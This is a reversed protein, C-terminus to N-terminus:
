DIYTYRDKIGIKNYYHNVKIITDYYGYKGYRDRHWWFNLWKQEQEETAKEAFTFRVEYLYDTSWGPCEKEFDHWEISHITKSHKCLAIKIKTYPVWWAQLLKEKVTDLKDKGEYKLFELLFSGKYYGAYHGCFEAYCMLPHRCMMGLMNELNTFLYKLEGKIYNLIDDATYSVCLSSRSPKFKDINTDYQAFLQIVKHDNDYDGKEHREKMAAIEEDSTYEESCWLGFKWHSWMGHGKLRFHTVSDKAGEFIFYGDPHEVKYPTYGLVYLQDFILDALFKNTLMFM